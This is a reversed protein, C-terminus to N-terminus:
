RSHISTITIGPEDSQINHSGPVDYFLIVRLNARVRVLSPGPIDGHEQILM